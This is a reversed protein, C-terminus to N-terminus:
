TIKCKIRRELYNQNIKKHFENCFSKPSTIIEEFGLKHYFNIGLKDIDTLIYHYGNFKLWKSIIKFFILSSITKLYDKELQIKRM